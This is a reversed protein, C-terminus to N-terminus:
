RLMKRWESGLLSFISVGARVLNIELGVRNNICVPLEEKKFFKRMDGQWGVELGHELGRAPVLM